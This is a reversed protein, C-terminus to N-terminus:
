SPPLPLIMSGQLAHYQWDSQTVGIDLDGNRVARINYISAGTAEVSCRLGHDARHRNVMRCIAAGSPYYIGTVGGTGITIFHDGNEEGCASLSLCLLCVVLTRITM